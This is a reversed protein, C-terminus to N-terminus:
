LMEITNTADWEEKDLIYKKYREAAELSKKVGSQLFEKSSEYVSINFPATTGVHIFFHKEGGTAHLYMAAQMDYDREYAEERFESVTVAQSSSKIELVFPIGENRKSVGDVKGKFPVGNLVFSYATEVDCKAMLGTAASNKLFNQEILTLKEKFTEPVLIGEEGVRKYLDDKLARLEEENKKTNTLTTYEILHKNGQIVHHICTGLLSAASGKFPKSKFHLFDHPGNKGLIYKLSSFSEAPFARYEKESLQLIKSTM